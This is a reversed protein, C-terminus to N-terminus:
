FTVWFTAASGLVPCSWFLVLKKREENSSSIAVSIGKKRLGEIGNKFHTEYAYLKLIKMNMLSETFAKLKRDQTAMLKIQYKLQLKGM